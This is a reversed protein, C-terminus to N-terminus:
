VHKAFINQGCIQLVFSQYFLLQLKVQMKITTIKCNQVSFLPVDEVKIYICTPRVSSLFIGFLCSCVAKFFLKTFFLILKLQDNIRLTRLLDYM